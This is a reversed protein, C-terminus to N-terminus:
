MDLQCGLYRKEYRQGGGNELKSDSIISVWRSCWSFACLWHFFWAKEKQQQCLKKELIFLSSAKFIAM